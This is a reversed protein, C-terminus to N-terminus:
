KENANYSLRGLLILISPITVGFIYIIDDLFIMSDVWHGTKQLVAYNFLNYLFMFLIGNEQNVWPSCTNIIMFGSVILALNIWFIVSVIQASEILSVKQLFTRGVIFYLFFVLGYHIYDQAINCEGNINLIFLMDISYVMINIIIHFGIIILYKCKM